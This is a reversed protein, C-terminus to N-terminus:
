KPEEKTAPAPPPTTAAVTAPHIDAAAQTLTLPQVKSKVRFIGGAVPALLAVIGAVNEVATSISGPSTLGLMVGLKPFLAVAAAVATTILGITQPSRYWPIAVAM